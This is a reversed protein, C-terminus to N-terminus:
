QAEPAREDGPAEKQRLQRLALEVEEPDNTKAIQYDYIFATWFELAEYFVQDAAIRKDGDLFYATWCADDDRTVIAQVKPDRYDSVIWHKSATAAQRCLYLARCGERVHKQLAGLSKFGLKQRQDPSMDNFVWDCLQWATVSANFASDKLQNVLKLLAEPETEDRGAVERYRDIERDLKELLERCDAFAFTQERGPLPM